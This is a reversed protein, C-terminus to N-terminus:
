LLDLRHHALAFWYLTVTTGGGPMAVPSSMRLVENRTVADFRGADVKPSIAIGNLPLFM